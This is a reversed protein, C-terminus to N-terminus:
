RVLVVRAPEGLAGALRAFYVGAAAAAGGFSRGDWAAGRAGAPVDLRQVRRGAVDHILITGARELARSALIETGGRTVSPVAALRLPRVPVAPASTGVGTPVQTTLASIWTATFLPSSEDPTGQGALALAFSLTFGDTWSRAAPNGTVVVDQFEVAGGQAAAVDFAVRAESLRQVTGGADRLAVPFALLISEPGHIPDPPYVDPILGGDVEGFGFTLDFDTTSVGGPETWLLSMEAVDGGAGAAKAWTWDSAPVSQSSTRANGVAVRVEYEFSGFGPDIPLFVLPPAPVPPTQSSTVDGQLEMATASSRRLRIDHIVYSTGNQNPPFHFWLSTAQNAIGPTWLSIPFQVTQRGAMSLNRVFGSQSTGDSVYATIFTPHNPTVDMEILSVSGGQTLDTAGAMNYRLQGSGFKAVNMVMFDDVFIGPSASAATQPGQMSAQLTLTRHTAFAHSWSGPIQASDQVVPVGSMTQFSFAGTEFDDIPALAAAPAVSLITSAVLAALSTARAPIM